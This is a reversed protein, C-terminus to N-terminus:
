DEFGELQQINLLQHGHTRTPSTPSFTYVMHTCTSLFCMSVLRTECRLWLLRASVFHMERKGLLIIFLINVLPYNKCWCSANGNPNKRIPICSGLALVM